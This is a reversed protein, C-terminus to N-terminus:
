GHAVKRVRAALETRSPRLSVQFEGLDLPGSNVETRTRRRRAILDEISRGPGAGAALRRQLVATSVVRHSAAPAFGVRALFRQVGRSGPIPVSYVDTAGQAAALEAAASLLAHGIGRRRSGAAVFLAEIYLSPENAFLDLDMLRALIFGQIVGNNDAVLVRGGPLALLVSLHRLLKDQDGICVQTGSGEERAECCLSAVQPLDDGVAQRIEVPSRM